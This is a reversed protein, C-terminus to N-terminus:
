GPYRSWTKTTGDKAISVVKYPHGPIDMGPASQPMGPITLGIIDPKTKLLRKIDIAPIHGEIAYNNVVGTHCSALQPSIGYRQKISKLERAEIVKVEFGNDKIHTIWKECCDCNLPKYVTILDNAMASFSILGTLMTPLIHKRM